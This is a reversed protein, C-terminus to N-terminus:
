FDGEIVQLLDFHEEENFPRITEGCADVWEATLEIDGFVGNPLAVSYDVRYTVTANIGNANYVGRMIKRTHTGYPDNNHDKTKRWVSQLSEEKICEADNFLKNAIAIINRYFFYTNM